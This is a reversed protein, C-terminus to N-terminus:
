SKEKNLNVKAGIITFNLNDCDYGKFIRLLPRFCTFNFENRKLFNKPRLWAFELPLQWFGLKENKFLIGNKLKKM